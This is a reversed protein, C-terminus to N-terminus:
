IVNLSCINTIYIKNSSIIVFKNNFDIREVIGKEISYMGNQYHTVSVYDGTNIRQLCFNLAEQEDEGLLVKPRKLAEIEKKHIAEEFGKLPSFPMFQKARESVPMKHIPKRGM